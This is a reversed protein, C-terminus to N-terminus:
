TCFVAGLLSRDLADFVVDDWIVALYVTLAVLLASGGWWAARSRVGLMRALLLGNLAMAGGILVANLM